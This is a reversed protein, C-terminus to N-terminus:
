CVQLLPVSQWFEMKNFLLIRSIIDQGKQTLRYKSTKPYKIILGHARLKALLRTVKTLLKKLNITQLADFVNSKILSETIEKRTFGKICYAGNMLVNFLNCTSGKLLNFAGYHRETANSDKRGLHTIKPNCLSEIEKELSNKLDLMALSNLYRENCKEAVGAIRYLNSISKGMPLWKGQKQIKFARSNNITTEIRLVSYKNYIKLWNKDLIFKVCFGQQYGKKRSVSEGKYNGNLKRGFFTFINEGVQCLSAYEVFKPFLTRLSERDKFLIDTAYECEDICWSYATRGLINEIRKKIPNIKEAFKDFVEYWKKEVLRESIKQAEEIEKIHTISNEYSQFAIGQKELQKKLYEKGNIYIQITYPLWSQLRVHMLGFERDNYYFYYHTCKRPEWRREKLKTEKNGRVTIAYCNETISLICLLGEKDPEMQLIEKAIKEKNIEPSWFHKRYCKTQEAIKDVQEKIEQSNKQVYKDYDKLLCGERNIFYKFRSDIHFDKIHGKIIIRDFGHIVGEINNQYKELFKEM